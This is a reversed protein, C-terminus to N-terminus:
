DTLSVHFHFAFDKFTIYKHSPTFRSDKVIPIVFPSILLYFSIGVTFMEMGDDAVQIQLFTHTVMPYVSVSTQLACM